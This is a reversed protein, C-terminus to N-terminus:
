RTKKKELLLRCVLDHRTEHARLHTYSVPHGRDLDAATDLPDAHLAIGDRDRGALHALPRPAHAWELGHHELGLDRLVPSALALPHCASFEDEVWDGDVRSAVAGGVEDREEVVLVDWGADALLAATVLGHHGAGVVVADVTQMRGGEDQGTLGIM